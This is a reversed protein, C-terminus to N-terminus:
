CREQSSGDEEGLKVLDVHVGDQVQKKFLSFKSYRIEEITYNVYM